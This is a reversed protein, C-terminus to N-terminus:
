QLLGAANVGPRATEVPRARGSSADTGTVNGAELAAIRGPGRSCAVVGCAQCAQPDGAGLEWSPQSRTVMDRNRPEVDISERRILREVHETRRIASRAV